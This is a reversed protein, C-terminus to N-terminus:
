PLHRELRRYLGMGVLSVPIWLLTFLPCIQGWLNGPQDRYDWVRHDRNFLLGATLEVLTIAVAGAAARLAPPWKRPIRGLITFCVGGALFMSWHSRQRWALELGMYLCGGLCFLWIKRWIKM